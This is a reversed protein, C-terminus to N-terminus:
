KSNFINIYINYYEEGNKATKKMSSLKDISINKLIRGFRCNCTNLKRIQSISTILQEDHSFFIIQPKPGDKFNENCNDMVVEFFGKLEMKNHYDNAYFIDDIMIPFLVNNKKMMRLCVATQFIIFFMRFRFTNFYKTVSVGNVTINIRCYQSNTIKPPEDESLHYEESFLNNIIKKFDDDIYENVMKEIGSQMGEKIANISFLFKDVSENQDKTYNRSVSDSYHKALKKIEDLYKESSSMENLKSDVSQLADIIRKNLHEVDDMVGENNAEGETLEKSLGSIVRDKIVKTYEAVYQQEVENILQSWEEMFPKELYPSFNDKIKKFLSPIASYQKDKYLNEAESIFQKILEKLKIIENTEWKEKHSFYDELQNKISNLIEENDNHGSQQKNLYERIDDLDRSVVFNWLASIGLLECIYPFFNDGDIMKGAKYISQESIFFNTLSLANIASINSVNEKKIIDGNDLVAIIESKKEGRSAFSQKEINRYAAEGIDDSFMFEAADFISSKGSGNDGLLFLMDIGDTDLGAYGGNGGYEGYKRFHKVLLQSLRYNKIEPKSEDQNEDLLSLADQSLKVYKERLDKPVDFTDFISNTDRNLSALSHLHNNLEEILRM